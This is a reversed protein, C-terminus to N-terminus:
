GLSSVSIVSVLVFCHSMICSITSKSCICGPLQSIYMVLGMCDTLPQHSDCGKGGRDQEHTMVSCLLSMIEFVGFQYHVSAFPEPHLCWKITAAAAALSLYHQKYYTDLGLALPEEAALNQILVAGQFM